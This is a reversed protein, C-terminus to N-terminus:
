SYSHLKNFSNKNSKGKYVIQLLESARSHFNLLISNTLTELSFSKILLSKRFIIRQFELSFMIMDLAPSCPWLNVILVLESAEILVKRTFLFNTRDKEALDQMDKAKTVTLIITIIRM